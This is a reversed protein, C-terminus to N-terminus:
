GRTIVVETDSAPGALEQGEILREIEVLEGDKSLDRLVRIAAARASAPTNESEIMGKLEILASPLSAAVQRRFHERQSKMGAELSRQFDPDALWSELTEISRIHCSTVIDQLPKAEVLLKLAEKHKRKLKM